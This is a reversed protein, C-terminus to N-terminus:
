GNILDDAIDLLLDKLEADCEYRAIVDDTNGLAFLEALDAGIMVAGDDDAKISTAFLEIDRRRDELLDVYHAAEVYDLNARAMFGALVYKFM